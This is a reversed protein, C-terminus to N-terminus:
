RIMYVDHLVSYVTFFFINCDVYTCYVNHVKTVKNMSLTMDKIEEKLKHIAEDKTSCQAQIEELRQQASASMRNTVDVKLM